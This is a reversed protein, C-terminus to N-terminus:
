PSTANGATPLVPSPQPPASAQPPAAGPAPEISVRLPRAGKMIELVMDRTAVERVDRHWWGAPSYGGSRIDIEGKTIKLNMAIKSILTALLDQRREEWRRHEEDSPNAPYNNLHAIYGRHASEVAEVGHFAVEVTNIAEVHVPSIAVRRTAMLTRFVAFRLQQIERRNERWFSVGVAAVPGLFTALVIAWTDAAMIQGM